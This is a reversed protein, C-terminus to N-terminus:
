ATHLDSADDGTEQDDGSGSRRERRPPGDTVADDGRDRLRLERGLRPRLDLREVAIRQQDTDGRRRIRDAIVARLRLLPVEDVDRDGLVRVIRRAIALIVIADDRADLLES